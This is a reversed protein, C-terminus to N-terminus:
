QCQPTRNPECVLVHPNATYTVTGQYTLGGVMWLLLGTSKGEQKLKGATWAFAATLPINLAYAATGNKGSVLNCAPKNMNICRDTKNLQVYTLGAFLLSGGLVVPNRMAQVWSRDRDDLHFPTAYQMQGHEMLNPRPVDPLGEAMGGDSETGATCLRPELGVSEIQRGASGCRHSTEAPGAPQGSNANRPHAQCAIVSFVFFYITGLTTKM